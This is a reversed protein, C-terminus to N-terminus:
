EEGGNVVSLEHLLFEQASVADGSRSVIRNYGGDTHLRWAFRKDELYIRLGHRVIKRKLARDEIPFCAEVRKLLNRSMWDASSCYVDPTGGNGFYFIRTHELFRGLISRVRINESLGPVGPRLCCIGRVILDIKVGAQSARYLASIVEREELGNMKAIIRGRKGDKAMEAERDIWSILRKHLDFPSQVVKKLRSAQGLGTLQHFLKHVDDGIKPDSSLLGIDTYAQATVNHYNGTGLHVYRKLRRGERRVVLLMKAHTKYGVVGYVVHAGAEQLREALQINEEEDFRARLEIAVTVEKGNRAAKVLSDVVPSSAGTRYLTQKIALVNPDEAAQQLMSIVPQFSQYPHHLLIDRQSLAGFVDDVHVLEEPMGPMFSPFKLDKREVQGYVSALRYLNVPGNAQYLDDQGLQFKELLFHVVDPPCNDAVELRVARGYKREKQLGGELALKLDDMEEEDLYLESDRTVRFQYCGTVKMGQFLDDVFAHMISSLFVFTHSFGSSEEPLRILRPLSRPVPIIALRHERGFADKGELSAIFHLNKNAVRPFPHAPDIGLPSILPMLETRFFRRLWIRQDENWHNRRLFRVGETELVPILRENLLEYQAGVMASVRERIQRLLGAPNMGDPETRQVGFSLKHKVSAVRVEFFEDLNSSSICLYRLRELMPVSEDAAMEYVRRHFALLSLERNLFLEPDDLEQHTTM